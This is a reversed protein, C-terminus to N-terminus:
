EMKILKMLSKAVTGYSYAIIPVSLMTVVAVVSKTTMTGDGWNGSLFKLVPGQNTFVVFYMAAVAAAFGILKALDRKGFLYRSKLQDKTVVPTKLRDSMFSQLERTLRMRTAGGKSLFVDGIVVLSYPTNRNITGLLKEGGGRVLRGGGSRGVKALEHLANTLGGDDKAAEEADDEIGGNDHASSAQAAAATPSGSLEAAPGEGGGNGLRTLEVAANWKTAIEVVEKFTEGDPNFSEEVWLINTTAMTARVEKVEQLQYLVQPVHESCSSDRPLFTVTVVGDDAMVKFGAARTREDRALALRAKAATRLNQMARESAPTMWFDPLRSMGMLASAANEVSMQELNMTIDYHGADEWSVGYM